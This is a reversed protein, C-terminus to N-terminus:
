VSRNGSTLLPYKPIQGPTTVIHHGACCIIRALPFYGYKTSVRIVQLLVTHAVTSTNSSPAHALTYNATGSTSSFSTSPTQLSWDNRRPLTIQFPRREGGYV